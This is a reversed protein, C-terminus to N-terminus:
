PISSGRPTISRKGRPAATYLRLLEEVGSLSLHPCKGAPTNAFADAGGMGSDIYIAMAKGRHAMPVELGPDDGVVAIDPLAVGLCRGAHRLAEISPKGLVKATCGTIAKLASTIVVSTGIAKGQATTFFPTSSASYLSAGQAVARYAMEIDHMAFERYWGVYVADVAASDDGSSLVVELGADRLPRWVGETGLVM